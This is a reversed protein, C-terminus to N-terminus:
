IGAVLASALSAMQLTDFLGTRDKWALSMQDLIFFTSLTLFLPTLKLRDASKKAFPEWMIAPTLGTQSSNQCIVKKKFFLQKKSM